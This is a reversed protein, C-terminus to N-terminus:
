KRRVRVGAPTDELLYGAALIRDRLEDAKKFDKAKKANNREEVAALIDAPVDEAARPLGDRFLGLIQDFLGIAAWVADLAERSTAIAPGNEDMMVNYTKILEFLYGIAGASNFDDDMAALFNEKAKSAAAILERGQATSVPPGSGLRSRLEDISRCANVLREFTKQSAELRERSYEMQSRFHTSLLYFRVVQGDFEKLVDEMGFFHGTSKSMKQGRLNLLGNHMWHHVFEKGTACESQALENEHHPFILDEGGGHFDLTEGLYKTAMASCEIHWGPRGKGWPSDWAPEGPKSAKWLAFDLPDEKNEGVEVRAGSILDDIDRKSLKGYDSKTRVRFYVDGNSEYAHGKDILDKVMAIIEGMHQTAYPYITAPKINVAAAIRHYAEINREVVVRYDVGEKNARDIIKDDIDTFNQIYAVDYGLHELYRRIMDGSVFALMHGMHPKDQVTMGCVYMGVKGPRVPEFDTKKQKLTDYVRLAM